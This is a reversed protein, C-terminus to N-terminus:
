KASQDREVRDASNVLSEVCHSMAASDPHNCVLLEQYNILELPKAVEKSLAALWIPALTVRQSAFQRATRPSFLPVIVPFPGNLVEVAPEKLSETIQDYLALSTTRIGAATLRQPIAGRTHTGCLHLMPRNPRTATLTEILKDANEGAFLAAWGADKAAKTTARGVCYVPLVRDPILASALEVTNTSTFILAGTNGLPIQDVIPAIRILPAYCVDVRARVTASLQEVFRVSAAYPRTMLLTMRQTM